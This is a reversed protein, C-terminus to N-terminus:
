GHLTLPEFRWQMAAALSEQYLYAPGSVAKARFLVGDSGIQILIRVPEKADHREGMVLQHRAQVQRIPVLRFDFKGGQGFHGGTLGGPGNASDRGTGAALGDGGM